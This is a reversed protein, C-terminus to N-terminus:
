SANVTAQYEVKPSSLALAQQKKCAWTVLGFGLTFVYGTTYKQDDPDDDWDSNTVGVLLPTGGINYHIGFQIIGQIYRLIRKGAKWHSEHPTQM